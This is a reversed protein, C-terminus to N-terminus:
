AVIGKVKLDIVTDWDFGLQEILIEDGHENFEPARGISQPEDNFQVPTSVLSFAVGDRTHLEQIYGNAEV